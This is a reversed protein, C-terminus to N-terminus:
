NIDGKLRKYVKKNTERKVEALKAEYARYLSHDDALPCFYFEYETSRVHPISKFCFSRYKDCVKCRRRSSVPPDVDINHEIRMLSAANRRRVLEDDPVKKRRKMKTQKPFEESSRKRPSMEQLGRSVEASTLSPFIPTTAATAVTVSLDNSHVTDGLGLQRLPSTTAAFSALQNNLESSEATFAGARLPSTSNKMMKEAWEMVVDRNVEFLPPVERGEKEAKAIELHRFVNYETQAKMCWKTKSMGRSPNSGSSWIELFKAEMQPNYDPPTPKVGQSRLSRAGANRRGSVEASATFTDINVAGFGHRETDIGHAAALTHSNSLCEEFSAHQTLARNLTSEKMPQQSAIPNSRTTVNVDSELKGGIISLENFDVTEPIDQTLMPKLLEEVYSADVSSDSDDEDSVGGEEAGEEDDEDLIDELELDIGSELRDLVDDDVEENFVKKVHNLYGFGFLLDTSDVIPISGSYESPAVGDPIAEKGLARSRKRNYHTLIWLLRTDFLAQRMTVVAYVKRDMVSHVAEVKSTSRMSIYTDLPTLTGRYQAVGTHVNMDMEDHVCGNLIHICQRRVCKLVKKTILPYAKHATTINECKDGMKISQLKAQRDIAAYGKVIGLIKSVIVKPDDIRKRVYKQEDSKKEKNTLNDIGGLRRANELANVDEEVLTFICDSIRRIFEPLRPHESNAEKGIRQILHFTDLKKLMGYFYAVADSRQGETGGCCLKDVYIVEPLDGRVIVKKLDDDLAAGHRKVLELMATKLWKEGDDPVVYYGLVYGADGVVTFSYGGNSGIAHRVVKHQHDMAMAKETKLTAMERLLEKRITLGDRVFANTLSAQKAVHSEDVKPFEKIVVDYGLQTHSRCKANYTDLLAAHQMELFARSTGEITAPLVGMRMQLILDMGVGNSKGAIVADLQLQQQRRLSKVYTTETSQFQKGGCPCKLGIGQVFRPWKGTYIMKVSNNVNAPVLASGKCHPCKGDYYGFVELDYCGKQKIRAYRGRVEDLKVPKPKQLIGFDIEIQPRVPAAAAAAAAPAQAPPPQPPLPHHNWGCTCQLNDNTSFNITSQNNGHLYVPCKKIADFIQKWKGKKPHQGQKLTIEGRAFKTARDRWEADTLGLKPM